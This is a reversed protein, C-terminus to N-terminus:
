SVMNLVRIPTLVDVRHAGASKLAQALTHATAGTTMLDDVIAVHQAPRQIVKFASRIYQYRMNKTHRSLAATKKIKIACNTNVPINLRKSLAHAILHAQNFGRTRWRSTHLPVPMIYAWDSQCQHQIHLALQEGLFYAVSCHGEFKMQNVIKKMLNCYEFLAITSDFSPPNLICAGCHTVTSDQPLPHACLTCCPPPLTKLQQLCLRCVCHPLWATQHCLLCRQWRPATALQMYTARGANFIREFCENISLLSM